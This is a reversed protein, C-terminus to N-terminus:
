LLDIKGNKVHAKIPKYSIFHLVDPEMEFLRLKDDDDLEITLYDKSRCLVLTDLQSELVTNPVSEYNKPLKSLVIDELHQNLDKECTKAYNREEESLRKLLEDTKLINFLCKQIKSILLSDNDDGSDHHNSKEEMNEEVLKIQKKIRFVLHSEYCLIEPTAKENRWARKLLEVDTTAILSEYDDM